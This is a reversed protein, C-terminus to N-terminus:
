KSAQEIFGVSTVLQDSGWVQRSMSLAELTALLNGFAKLLEKSHTVLYYVKESLFLWPVKCPM